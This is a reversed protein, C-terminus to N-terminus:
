RCVQNGEATRDECTRSTCHNGFGCPAGTSGDSVACIRQGLVVACILGVNCHSDDAGCPAGATGDSAVCVATTTSAATFACILGDNCHGAVSCAHGATMDSCKNELCMYGDICQNNNACAGMSGVHCTNDECVLALTTSCHASTRCEGGIGSNSIQTCVKAGTAGACLLDGTCMDDATCTGGRAVRCTDTSTDCILPDTCHGNTRCVDEVAGNPQTCVRSGTEGACLFDDACESDATCANGAAIGCTNTNTDCILDGACERSAACANGAAIGCTNNGCILDDTCENDDNCTGGQAVRCTDTSTDCILPDTCHGNNRCVGGVARNPRTCVRSGTEGACLLDGACASDATCPNNQAIRCTSTDTNMEEDCVLDDTCHGDVGCASGISRDSSACVLVGAVKACILGVDCNNDTGYCNSGVIGGCTGGPLCILDDTCDNSTECKERETGDTCRGVACFLGSGCESNSSCPAGKSGTHANTNTDCAWEFLVVVSLVGTLLVAM